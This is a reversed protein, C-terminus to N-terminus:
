HVLTLFIPQKLQIKKQLKVSYQFQQPIVKMAELLRTYIEAEPLSDGQATFL